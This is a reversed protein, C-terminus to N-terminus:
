DGYEIIFNFLITNHIELARFLFALYVYEPDSKLALHSISVFVTMKLHDIAKSVNGNYVNVWDNYGFDEGLFNWVQDADFTVSEPFNIKNSKGIMTDIYLSFDDVSFGVSGSYENMASQLSSSVGTVKYFNNIISLQKLRDKILQFDASISAGFEIVAVYKKVDSNLMSDGGRTISLQSLRDQILQLDDSIGDVDKKVDSNLMSDGGRSLFYYSLVNELLLCCRNKVM